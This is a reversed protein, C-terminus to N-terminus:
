FRFGTRILSNSGSTTRFGSVSKPM